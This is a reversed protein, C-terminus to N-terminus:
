KQEGPMPHKDEHRQQQNEIRHEDRAMEDGVAGQENTVQAVFQLKLRLVFEDAEQEVVELFMRAVPQPLGVCVANQRMYRVAKGFGGLLRREFNLTRQEGVDDAALVRIARRFEQVNEIAHRPPGRKAIDHHRNGGACM